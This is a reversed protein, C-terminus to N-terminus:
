FIPFIVEQSRNNEDLGVCTIYWVSRKSSYFVTVYFIKFILQLKTSIYSHLRSILFFEFLGDRTITHVLITSGPEPNDLENKQNVIFKDYNLTCTHM